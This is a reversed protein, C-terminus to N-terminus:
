PPIGQKAQVRVEVPQFFFDIQQLRSAPRFGKASVRGFKWKGSEVKVNGIKAKRKGREGM